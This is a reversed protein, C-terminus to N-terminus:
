LQLGAEHIAHRVTKQRPRGINASPMSLSNALVGSINLIRNSPPPNQIRMGAVSNGAKSGLSNRHVVFLIYGNAMRLPALDLRADEYWEDFGTAVSKALGGGAFEHSRSDAPEGGVIAGFPGFRVAAAEPRQSFNGFTQPSATAAKINIDDILRVIMEVKVDCPASVCFKKLIKPERIDTVENVAISIM